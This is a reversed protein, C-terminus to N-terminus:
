QAIENINVALGDRLQMVGNTILTDGAQLGELVQIRSSMRRGLVLEVQKAKGEQFIYVFDRDMEKIVSESPVTLANEIQDADINVTASFGPKLRGNTNPYIARAKLNMTSLDLKSEIALITAPYVETSGQESRVQFTVPLGPRLLHAEMESVSFEIKLPTIRILNSIVVSPSAYAGESVNRLGVMGDFPARLETQAIRAEMLEIDARLKELDTNVQEFAEQSVADKELLSKQRFVRDEALPIQAKLKKLEAQLPGDNIKALLEGKKVSSGEKFFIDTIKGSAEFSLNVEEDPILRANSSRLQESLSVPSIIEANISLPMGRGSRPSPSSVEKETSSKQIYKKIPSYLAIGAILLTLLSFVVIKTNKNM